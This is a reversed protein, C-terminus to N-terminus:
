PVLKLIMGTDTAVWINQDDVLSMMARTAVARYDVPMETWRKLDSSTVIKLKGPVVVTRLRGPVEVGTLYATGSPAIWADNIARDKERYVRDAQGTRGNISFVEAPFPFSAAFETLALAIGNGGIRFRSIRGFMSATDPIWNAGADATKLTINLHPREARSVAEDPELWDPFKQGGQKPPRSFGTIVGNQGTFSIWTYFTYEPTTKPEAATALPKWHLGGDQTEVVLKNSGVGFGHKEDLFWVRALGKPPDPLKKWNRGAETTQWLGRPASVMWGLGENLFYLSVGMERTPVLTWHAGGDSTVVATPRTKKGEGIFGIAVGRQASAFKLDNITLGTKNEDYFYQLHWREGPLAGAFSLLALLATAPRGPRITV